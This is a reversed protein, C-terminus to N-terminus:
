LNMSDAPPEQDDPKNIWVAVPLAPPEPHKRVFREPHRVYAVALADARTERVAQRRVVGATVADRLDTGCGSCCGPLHDIVDDPSDVL